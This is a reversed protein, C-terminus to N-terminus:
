QVERAENYSVEIDTMLVKRRQPKWLQGLEMEEAQEESAAMRVVPVNDCKHFAHHGISKVSAPIFLDTLGRCETFADTGISELTDPLNIEQLQHCKFFGLNGISVLQEPLTVYQLKDAYALSLEGIATVTSQIEYKTGIEDFRLDFENKTMKGNEDPEATKEAELLPKIADLFAPADEASAPAAVGMEIATRYEGNKTPYLVLETPIGDGNACKYLVGFSSIYNSNEPHVIVAYLNKCTYFAKSDIEKVDKGIFIFNVSEDCCVAFRRVTTVPKTEDPVDQENRVYDVTLVKRSGGHYEDLMFTGDANEKFAFLDKSISNFSFFMSLGVFCVLMVIFAAKKVIAKGFFGKSPDDSIKVDPKKDFLPDYLLKGESIRKNENEM